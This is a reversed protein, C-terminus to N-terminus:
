NGAKTTVTILQKAGCYDDALMANGDPTFPQGVPEMGGSAPEETSELATRM